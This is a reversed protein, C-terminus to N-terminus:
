RSPEPTITLTVTAAKVPSNLAIGLRLPKTRTPVDENLREESIKFPEGGTDIKVRVAGGEDSLLLETESLKKWDGWTILATEFGKPESFAAEDRVTLAASEGRRFVFTRHLSKLEPVSYASSIDLVLAIRRM